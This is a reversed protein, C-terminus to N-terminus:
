PISDCDFSTSIPFPLPQNCAIPLSAVASEKIVSIRTAVGKICNCALRRDGTTVCMGRVRTVGGCCIQSPRSDIGSLYSICAALNPAVDLCTFAETPETMIMLHAMVAVLLVSIVIRQTKMM